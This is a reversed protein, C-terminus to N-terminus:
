GEAGARYASRRNNAQQSWSAWRCNDPEYGGFPDIRDLTLGDPRRGMDEEFCQYGTRGNEGFRWRDCVRVGKAGYWHYNPATKLYCRDLMQRYVSYEPKHSDRGLGKTKIAMDSSKCGCSKHKGKVLNVTMAVVERGCDCRLRWAPMRRGSSLVRHTPEIATLYGFREGARDILHGM